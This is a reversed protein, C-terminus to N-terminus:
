EDIMEQLRAVINMGNETEKYVYSLYEAFIQYRQNIQLIM